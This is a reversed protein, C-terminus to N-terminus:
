HSHNPSSENADYAILVSHNVNIHDQGSDYSIRLEHVQFTNFHITEWNAFDGEHVLGDRSQCADENEDVLSWTFEVERGTEISQILEPNEVTSNIHITNPSSGGNSPIPDIVLPTPEYTKSEMWDIRLEIRVVISVIETNGMEDSAYAQLPYFGHASFEISIDEHEDPIVTVPSSGDMLDIGFEVLRNESITRSFDFNLVVNNTSVLGGDIYSQVITGNTQTYHVELEIGNGNETNSLCGALSGSLLLVAFLVSQFLRM